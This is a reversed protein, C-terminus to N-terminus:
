QYLNVIQEAFHQKTCKGDRYSAGGIHVFTEDIIDYVLDHNKGATSDGSMNVRKSKTIGYEEEKLYKYVTLWNSGGTDTGLEYRHTFNFTKDM